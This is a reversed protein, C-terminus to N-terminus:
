TRANSAPWLILDLDLPHKLGRRRMAIFAAVPTSRDIGASCHLLVPKKMKEFADNAKLRVSAAEAWIRRREADTQAHAPDPWPIHEVELGMERYFGLLGDPHLALPEYHRLEAADCLCIVSRFGLAIIREIWQVVAPQAKAPLPKMARGNLNFRPDDRLPRQCVALEGPIVCVGLESDKGRKIARRIAWLRERIRAELQGREKEVTQSDNM